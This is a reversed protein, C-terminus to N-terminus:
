SIEGAERLRAVNDEIWLAEGTDTWTWFWMESALPREYRGIEVWCDRPENWRYARHADTRDESRLLVCRMSCACMFFSSPEIKIADRPRVYADCEICEVLAGFRRMAETRVTQSM